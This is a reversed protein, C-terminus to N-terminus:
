CVPGELCGTLVYQKWFVRLSGFFEEESGQMDIFRIIDLLFSGCRLCFVYLRCM